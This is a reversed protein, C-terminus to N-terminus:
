KPPHPNCTGNGNGNGNNCPSKSPTPTSQAPPPVSQSPAPSSPSPSPSSPSPGPQRSGSPRPSPQGPRSPRPSATPTTLPRDGAPSALNNVLFRARYARVGPATVLVIYHGPPLPGRFFEHNQNIAYNFTGAGDVPVQVAPRDVGVLAIAVQSFPPYRQGHVVFVTYGDGTPQNM